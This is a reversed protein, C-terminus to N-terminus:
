QTDQLRHGKYSISELQTWDDLLIIAGVVSLRIDVRSVRKEEDNSAHRRDVIEHVVFSTTLFSEM